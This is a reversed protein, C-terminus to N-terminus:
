ASLYSLETMWLLNSVALSEKVFEFGFRLGLQFGLESGFMSEWLFASEFGFRLGLQFEWVFWIASEFEIAM